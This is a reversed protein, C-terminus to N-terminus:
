EIRLGGVYDQMLANRTDPWAVYLIGGALANGTYDGMYGYYPNSLNRALRFNHGFSKGGDKSIAAFPQYFVDESDNRRDLWSVGVIGTASVSLGPFFQDNRYAAGVEVPSGWSKGGYRSTVAEVKMQAGTWDYVIVYLSGAYLGSSNDVAILPPNTVPVYTHPLNGFMACNCTDPVLRVITVQVPSSWTNGGDSSKSFLMHANTGGCNIHQSTMECRQWTVYVTGDSGVAARSYNDVKPEVQVSDVTKMTWTNGGDRSYSVTIQSEVQYNQTAAIYLSNAYSSQAGNDVALWPTLVAGGSFLAPVAENPSSWSNGNDSTTTFEIGSNYNSGVEYATNKNGYAISPTEGACQSNQSQYWSKGGDVSGFPCTGAFNEDLGALLQAHKAPNAALITNASPSAVILVNPLVCPAPSCTLLDHHASWTQHVIKRNASVKQGHIFLLKTQSSASAANSHPVSFSLLLPLSLALIQKMRSDGKFELFPV